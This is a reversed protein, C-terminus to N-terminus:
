YRPGIKIEYNSLILFLPIGVKVKRKRCIICSLPMRMRRSKPKSIKDDNNSSSHKMELNVDTKNAMEVPREQQPSMIAMGDAMTHKYNCAAAPFTVCLLCVSLEVNLCLHEM